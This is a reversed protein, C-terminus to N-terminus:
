TITSIMQGSTFKFIQSAEGHFYDSFAGAEYAAGVVLKNTSSSGFGFTFTNIPIEKIFAIEYQQNTVILYAKEQQKDFLVAIYHWQLDRIKGSPISETHSHSGQKFKVQLYEDSTFDVTIHDSNKRVTCSFLKMQTYLSQDSGVRWHSFFRQRTFRIRDEHFVSSTGNFDATKYFPLPSITGTNYDINSEFEGTPLSGYNEQLLYSKTPETTPLDHGFLRALSSSASQEYGSDYMKGHDVLKLAKINTFGSEYKRKTDLEYVAGGRHYNPITHNSWLGCVSKSGSVQIVSSM